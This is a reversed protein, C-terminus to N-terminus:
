FEYNNRFTQFTAINFYAPMAELIKKYQETYDEPHFIKHSHHSFDMIPRSQLALPVIFTASFVVPQVDASYTATSQYIVYVPRDQLHLKPEAPSALSWSTLRINERPWITYLNHNAGIMTFTYICTEGLCDRTAVATAAPSFPAPPDTYLFLGRSLDAGLTARFLPLNCYVQRECDATFNTRTNLNIGAATLAPVVTQTNYVDWRSVFIGSTQETQEGRANYSTIQSHFWYQRQTSPGEDQYPSFPIFMLVLCTVGVVSLVAWLHKRSFLLEIGSVTCSVLAALGVNIMAVTLDPTDTTSRGMVPLIIANFRLVLTMIFMTSPLSLIMEMILHQWAQLRIYRVVTLSVLSMLAMVTLPTSVMYRVSVLSSVCCLLLLLIAMILRTAAMAQLTRISRNLGGTKTRWADFAQSVAVATLLYPIWYLPVVLWPLAMYRMQTTTAVMILTLIAVPVVGAVMAALRGLVAYMLGHITSMRPGVLWVYYAVSVFALLSVFVDIAYSAPFSYTVLFWNLFDYYVAATPVAKEQLEEMDGLEAVLPLLMNGAWQLVGEHLLEPADYRTHYVSGWKNFAMDIGYFKGFDRWIRFDTDSPIIGTSFVFEALGQANPRYVTRKYAALVRPDTIQFVSAKGNMGAADLNIVTTIGHAWPHQLFAHSAQLPNEEAGNFLFILNNKFKRTRRSLRNLTEAMVACFVANDSAGLAYPVSDYHCNILVSTRSSGNSEFGSEGELVAIVNSANDYWNVLGKLGYDGSALQWDTRMNPSSAAMGDLLTMLDATKNLHYPTGAVRANHGIIEHLYRWASEESFTDSSDEALQADNVVAPMSDEVLQTFFGLLLYVGLLVILLTSPLRQWPKEDRDAENEDTPVGTYSTMVDLEVGRKRKLKDSENINGSM